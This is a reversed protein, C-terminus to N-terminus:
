SEGVRYLREPANIALLKTALGRAIEDLLLLEAGVKRADQKEVIKLM